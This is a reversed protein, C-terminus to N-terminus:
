KEYCELIKKVFKIGIDALTFNIFYLLALLKRNTSLPSFILYKCYKRHKNTLKAIIEEKNVFEDSIGFYSIKCLLSFPTRAKKIYALKKISGYQEDQVLKCLEDAAKFLDFDKKTM